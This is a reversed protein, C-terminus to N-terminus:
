STRQPVTSLPAPNYSKTLIPHVNPAVRCIVILSIM